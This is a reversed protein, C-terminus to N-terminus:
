REHWGDGYATGQKPHNMEFELTACASNLTL